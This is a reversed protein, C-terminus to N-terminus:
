RRLPRERVARVTCAGIFFVAGAFVYFAVYEGPYISRKLKEGCPREHVAGAFAVPSKEFGRRNKRM